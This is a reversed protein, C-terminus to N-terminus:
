HDAQEWDELLADILAHLRARRDTWHKPMRSLTLNHGTIAEELEARTTDDTVRIIEATM